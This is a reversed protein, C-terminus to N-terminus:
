GTVRKYLLFGGLVLTMCGCLAGLAIWGPSNYEREHKNLDEKSAFVKVHLPITPAQQPEAAGLQDRVQEAAPFSVSAQYEGPKVDAAVAVSWSGTIAYQEWSATTRRGTKASTQELAAELNLNKVTIGPPASIKAGKLLVNAPTGPPLKQYSKKNQVWFTFSIRGPVEKEEGPLFWEEGAPLRGAVIFAALLAAAPIGPSKRGTMLSTKVNEEM